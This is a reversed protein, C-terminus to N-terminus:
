AAVQGSRGMQLELEAAIGSWHGAEESHREREPFSTAREAAQRAAVMHAVADDFEIEIDSKPPSAQHRSGTDKGWCIPGRGRAVSVPDTLESGCDGCECAVFLEGELPGKGALYRLLMLAAEVRAPDAGRQPRFERREPFYTAIRDEYFGKGARIFVCSAETFPQQEWRGGIKSMGRFFVTVHERDGKVSANLRGRALMAGADTDIEEDQFLTPAMCSRPTLDEGDLTPVIPKAQRKRPLEMLASIAASAAKRSVGDAFTEITPIDRESALKNYFALQKATPTPDQAM